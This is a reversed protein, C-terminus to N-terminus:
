ERQIALATHEEGACEDLGSAVEPLGQECPERVVTGLRVQNEAVAKLSLHCALQLSFRPLNLECSFRRCRSSMAPRQADSRGWPCLALLRGTPLRRMLWASDQEAAIQKLSGWDM